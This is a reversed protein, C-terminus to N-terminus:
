VEPDPDPDPEPCHSQNRDFRDVEGQATGFFAYNAVSCDCDETGCEGEHIDYDSTEPTLICDEFIRDGNCGEPPVSWVQKTCIGTCEDTAVTYTCNFTTWVSDMDEASACTTARLEAGLYFGIAVVIVLSSNLSIASWLKKKDKM